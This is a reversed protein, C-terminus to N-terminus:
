ENAPLPPHENSLKTKHDVSLILCSMNYEIGYSLYLWYKWFNFVSNSISAVSPPGHALKNGLHESNIKRWTNM